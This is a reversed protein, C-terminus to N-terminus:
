EQDPVFEVGRLMRRLDVVAQDDLERHRATDFTQTEEGLTVTYRGEHHEEVTGVTRLLSLVDHWQINHSTPHRFIREVTTRHHGDLGKADSM